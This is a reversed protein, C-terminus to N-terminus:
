SPSFHSSVRSSDVNQILDEGEELEVKGHDEGPLLVHGEHESVGAGAM